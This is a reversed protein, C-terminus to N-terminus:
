EMHMCILYIQLYCPLMDIVKSLRTMAFDNGNKNTSLNDMMCPIVMAVAQPQTISNTSFHSRVGVSEPHIKVNISKDLKMSGTERCNVLSM